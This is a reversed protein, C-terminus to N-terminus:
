ESFGFPPGMWSYDTLDGSALIEEPGLISTDGIDGTGTYYSVFYPSSIDTGSWTIDIQECDEYIDRNLTITFDSTQTPTTDISTPEPLPFLDIFPTESISDSAPFTSPFDASLSEPSVTITESISFTTTETIFDTTSAETAGTGISPAPTVIELTDTTLTPEQAWSKSTLQLMFLSLILTPPTHYM